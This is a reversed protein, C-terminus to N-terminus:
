INYVIGAFFLILAVIGTNMKIFFALLLLIDQMAYNFISPTDLSERIWFLLLSLLVLSSGPGFYQPLIFCLTAALLITVKRENNERKLNKFTIIFFNFAIFLDYFLLHWKNMGWMIRTSLYSLPGYTFIFGNGWCLSKIKVYNLALMWSTDISEWSYQMKEPLAPLVLDFYTPFLIYAIAFSCFIAFYNQLKKITM